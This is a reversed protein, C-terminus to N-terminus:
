KLQVQRPLDLSTIETNSAIILSTLNTFAEIGSLKNIGKNIM